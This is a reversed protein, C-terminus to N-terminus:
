CRPRAPQGPLLACGTEGAGGTFQSIGTGGLRVRKKATSGKKPILVRRAPKFRYSGQRLKTHILELLEDQRAEFAEVTMQDIGAAGANRRVQQWAAWLRGPEYVQAMGETHKVHSSRSRARGGDITPNGPARKPGPGSGEQGELGRIQDTGRPSARTDGYRNGPGASRRQTSEIATDSDGKTWPKGRGM